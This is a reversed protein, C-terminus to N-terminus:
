DSGVPLLRVTQEHNLRMLHLAKKHRKRYSPNGADSLDCLCAHLLHSNRRDRVKISHVNRRQLTMKPAIATTEVFKRTANVVVWDHGISDAFRDRGFVCELSVNRQSMCLWEDTRQSFFDPGGRMLIGSHRPGDDEFQFRLFERCIPLACTQVGTVKYDRIGDEAQFFFFSFAVVADVFM